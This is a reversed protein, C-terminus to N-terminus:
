KRRPCDRWDGGPRPAGAAALRLHRGSGAADHGRAADASALRDGGRESEREPYASFVAVIAHTVEPFLHSVLLPATFGSRTHFYLAPPRSFAAPFASEPGNRSLKAPHAFARKRRAVM